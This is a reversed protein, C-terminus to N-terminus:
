SRPVVTVLSIRRVAGSALTGVRVRMGWPEDAYEVSIGDVVPIVTSDATPLVVDVWLDDVASGTSISVTLDPLGTTEFGRGPESTADTWQLSVDGRALWWEAVENAQALWWDGETRATDAITRIAELRPGDAIIQTHGAIVALGGIARMKRTGALWAEVLGSARLTVDTVIVSYDDKLLRPLLVIPGLGTAHEEPSASRADNTALVYTGGAQRWARLTASDVAEEPPRLGAPGVGTWSEIDRWSRGLRMSQEQVTMGILPTHDVTQSGVEGASTLAEALRDDDQVLQSVPFFTIPLRELEFMAAADRAYVYDDLGEVDLVFVLAAQAAGPWASPSASPTCAAWLLGNRVIRDLQDDDGPTAGQGTRLGFWTVRGGEATRTTSVAVDAGAGDSDPAPNLAWDSWYVREGPMRLALVPDPRLGIRTGPDIGPSIPLGAPVTMYLADRPPLERLAEAGTVDTLTTWGRWECDGDRVGLAWNAVLSGGRSLHSGLVALEDSALCPSEPLIMLEDISAAQLEEASRAVRVTGGVSQILETWRDLQTAYYTPDDFYSANADSRLLVASFPVEAVAPAPASRAEPLVPLVEALGPTLQRIDINQWLAYGAAAVLSGVLGLTVLGGLWWWAEKARPVPDRKPRM